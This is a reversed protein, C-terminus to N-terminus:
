AIRYEIGCMKVYTERSELTGDPFKYRINAIDGNEFFLYENCEISEIVPDDNFLIYDYEAEYTKQLEEATDYEPDGSIFDEPTMDSLMFYRHEEIAHAQAKGSLESLKYLNISINYTNM